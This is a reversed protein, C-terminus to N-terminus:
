DGLNSIAKKWRALAAYITKRSYGTRHMVEAIAAKHCSGQLRVAQMTGFIYLIMRVKAGLDRPRGRKKKSASSGPSRLVWSLKRFDSLLPYRAIPSSDTFVPPRTAGALEQDLRPIAQAPAKPREDSASDTKPHTTAM